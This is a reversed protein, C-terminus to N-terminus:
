RFWELFTDLSLNSYEERYMADDNDHDMRHGDSNLPLQSKENLGEKNGHVFNDNNNFSFIDLLRETGM